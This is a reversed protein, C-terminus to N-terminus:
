VTFFHQHFEAAATLPAAFETEILDADSMLERIVPAHTKLYIGTRELFRGLNDSLAADDGVGGLIAETEAAIGLVTGGDATQTADLPPRRCPSKYQDGCVRFLEGGTFSRRRINATSPM